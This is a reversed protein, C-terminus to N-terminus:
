HIILVRSTKLHRALHSASGTFNEYLEHNDNNKELQVPIKM